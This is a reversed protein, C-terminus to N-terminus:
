KATRQLDHVRAPLKPTKTTSEFAKCDASQLDKIMSAISRKNEELVELLEEGQADSNRHIKDMLQVYSEYLAGRENWRNMLFGNDYCRLVRVIMVIYSLRAFAIAGPISM